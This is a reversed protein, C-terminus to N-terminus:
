FERPPPLLLDAATGTPFPKPKPAALKKVEAEVEAVKRGLGNNEIHTLRNSLNQDQSTRIVKEASVMENLAKVSKKLEGLLATDREESDHTSQALLTETMQVSHRLNQLFQVFWYLGYATLGLWIFWLNVFLGQWVTKSFFDSTVQWHDILFAAVTILASVVAAWTNLNM